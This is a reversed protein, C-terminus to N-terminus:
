VITDYKRKVQFELTKPNSIHVAPIDEIKHRLKDAVDERSCQLIVLHIINIGGGLSEMEFFRSRMSTCEDYKKM